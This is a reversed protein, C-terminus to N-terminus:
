IPQVFTDTLSLHSNIPAHICANIPSCLFNTFTPSKKFRQHIKAWLPTPTIKIKNVGKSCLDIPGFLLLKTETM